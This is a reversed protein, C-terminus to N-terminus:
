LGSMNPLMLDLILLDLKKELAVRYGTEGDTATLVDYREFRLIDKLGRLIASDDEVILVVSM